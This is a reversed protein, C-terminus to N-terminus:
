HAWQVGTFELADDTFTVVDDIQGHSPVVERRKMIPPIGDAVIVRGGHRGGDVTLCVLDRPLIVVPSDSDNRIVVEACGLVNQFTKPQFSIISCGKYVLSAMPKAPQAQRPAPAPPKPPPVPPKEPPLNPNFPEMVMEPVASAAAPGTDVAIFGAPLNNKAVKLLGEDARLVVSGGEDDMRKVHHLVRGDKLTLLEATPPPTPDAARGAPLGASGALLLLWLIAAHKM